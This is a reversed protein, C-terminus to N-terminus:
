AYMTSSGMQQNHNSYISSSGMHAHPSDAGGMQSSAMNYTPPASDALVSGSLNNSEINAGEDSPMAGPMAKLAELTSEWIALRESCAEKMASAITKMSTNWKLRRDVAVRNIESKLRAAIEEAEGMVANAFTDTRIANQELNNLQGFQGSAQLQRHQQALYLARQDAGRRYAGKRQIAQRRDQLAMKEYRVMKYQQLFADMAASMELALRKNRRGMRLMGNSLVDCVKFDENSPLKSVKSLEMGVAGAADGHERLSSVTGELKPVAQSVSGMRLNESGSLALLEADDEWEHAPANSATLQTTEAVKMSMGAAVAGLKTLANGSVEPWATGIDDQLGLFLRLVQSQGAVPHKALANLYQKLERARQMAFEASQQTTAEELARTAHKDPRPPLICGPCSQRLRDELAVVHRFRRRVLWTGQQPPALQSTIQYSWYPPSSLLFNQQQILMPESVEINTYIPPVEEPKVLMMKRVQQPQHHQFRQPSMGMTPAANHMGATISPQPVQAQAQQTGYYYQNGHPAGSYTNSPPPPGTNIVSPPHERYFGQNPPQLSMNQMGSQLQQQQQPAPPYGLNVSQMMGSQQMHYPSEQSHFQPQSTYGHPSPPQTQQQRQREQEEEQQKKAAEEAQRRNEEERRQKEAEQEAKLKENEEEDVADFLGGGGEGQDGSDAAGGLLGSQTLLSPGNPPPQQPTEVRGTGAEVPVNTPLPPISAGETERHGGGGNDGTPVKDPADGDDGDVPVDGFLDQEPGESMLSAMLANKDAMKLLSFASHNSNQVILLQM